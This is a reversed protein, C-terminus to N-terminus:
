DGVVVNDTASQSQIERGILEDYEPDLTLVLLWLFFM